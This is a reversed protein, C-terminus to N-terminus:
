IITALEKGCPKGIVYMCVEVLCASLTGVCSSFCTYVRSCPDKGGTKSNRNVPGDQEHVGVDVVHRGERMAYRLRLGFPVRLAAM